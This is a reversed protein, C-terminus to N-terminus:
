CLNRQDDNLAMEYATGAVDKPVCFYEYCKEGERFIIVAGCGCVLTEEGVSVQYHIKGCGDCEMWVNGIGLNFLM